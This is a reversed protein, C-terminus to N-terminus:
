RPACRLLTMVAFATGYPKHYDWMAYDWWSGDEAEQHPLVHAALKRLYAPRDAEPLLEILLAAYYHDFYYYYGSTQFWAEHPYPRKRGMDLYIHHEFFLDLGQKSEKEGVKPSKWLWLAFNSPQTRGISGKDRNAPM